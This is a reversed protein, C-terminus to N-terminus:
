VAMASSQRRVWASPRSAVTRIRGDAGVHRVINYGGIYFGGDPTALVGAPYGIEAATAQGGDGTNGSGGNGAVTSITQAAAMAPVLGALLSIAAIINRTNM